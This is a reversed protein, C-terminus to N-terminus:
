PRGSRASRARSTCSSRRPTSDGRLLAAFAPILIPTEAVYERLTDELGESGFHERYATSFAGAATAAGGPPYDGFLFNLDEGDARLRGVFEDVLRTKGIGAEGQILLVQGDGAQARRFLQELKSLEEDRGHLATDRPIRVRRLPQNTEARIAQAREQWWESGEGAELVERLEAATAFRADADKALLTAIVEEFFPSLQPNIEAAPRAEEQLQKRMATRLDADAFPHQGTTLEYLTLGLSYLDARADVDKSGRFQEPAAYLVSGVFAGTQSLRIVEDALQAVGLDMVKVQEDGTILANDPKLDRHVIGAAHIATLAGCM